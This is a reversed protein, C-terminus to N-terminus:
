KAPQHDFHFRVSVPYLTHSSFGLTQLTQANAHPIYNYPKMFIRGVGATGFTTWGDEEHYHCFSSSSVSAFFIKIRERRTPDFIVGYHLIPIALSFTPILTLALTLTLTLTLTWTHTRTRIQSEWTRTLTLTLTLNVWVRVRVRLVKLVYCQRAEPYYCCCFQMM